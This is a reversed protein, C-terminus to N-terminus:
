FKQHKTPIEFQSRRHGPKTFLESESPTLQSGQTQIKGPFYASTGSKWYSRRKRKKGHNEQKGSSAMLEM